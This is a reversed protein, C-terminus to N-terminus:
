LFKVLDRQYMEDMAERDPKADVHRCLTMDENIRNRCSPCYLAYTVSNWCTAHLRDCDTRNCEGDYVQGKTQDVHRPSRQPHLVLESVDIKTKPCM